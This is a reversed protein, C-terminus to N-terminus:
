KNFKSEISNSDTTCKAFCFPCRLVWIIFEKRLPEVVVCSRLASHVEMSRLWFCRVVWYVQRIKHTRKFSHKIVEAVVTRVAKRRCAYNHFLKHLCLFVNFSSGISAAELLQELRAM